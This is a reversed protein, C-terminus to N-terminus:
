HADGCGKGGNVAQLEILWLDSAGSTVVVDGEFLGDVVEVLAGQVPGLKVLTRLISAGNQVYVFPGRVSDVVSTRPIAVVGARTGGAGGPRAELFSGARLLSKPDRISVLVEAAGGIGGRAAPLAEVFAEFEGADARLSVAQGVAVNKEEGAPLFFSGLAKGEAAPNESAARYVQVTFADQEPTIDASEVEATALGIAKAAAESLTVGRGAKFTWPEAESHASKASAKKAPFGIMFIGAAVVAAAAIFSFSKM